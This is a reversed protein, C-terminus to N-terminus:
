YRFIIRAKTTDYPSIAFKCKDGTLIRIRNKKIKGASYAIVTHGNSLKCRFTANPLLEEVIGDMEILDEKVLNNEGLGLKSLNLTGWQDKM